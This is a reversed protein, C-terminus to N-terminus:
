ASEVQFDLNPRQRLDAHLHRYFVGFAIDCLPIGQQILSRITARHQLHNALLDSIVSAKEASGGHLQFYFCRLTSTHANIQLAPLALAEYHLGAQTFQDYTKSLRQRTYEEIELVGRVDYYICQGTRLTVAFHPRAIFGTKEFRLTFPRSKYALVRPDHELHVCFDAQLTNECAVMQHNKISPFHTVRMHPRGSTLPTRPTLTIDHHALSTVFTNM